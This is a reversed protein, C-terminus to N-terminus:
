HLSSPHMVCCLMGPRHSCPWSVLAQYACLQHTCLWSVVRGASKCYCHHQQCWAKIDQKMSARPHDPDLLLADVIYPIFRTDALLLLKHEDSICLEAVCVNDATPQSFKQYGVARVIQSWNTLLLEIHRPAFAFESGGEDKGFVQCALKAAIAATTWGLDHAVELSHEIRTCFALASGIHRVKGECGSMNASRSLLGMAYFLVMHNTDQSNTGATAFAVIIEVCIDAMGSALFAKLDPRVRSGAFHKTLEYAALLMSRVIGIKGRSISLVDSPSGVKRIQQVALDFVGMQMALAGVTPRGRLCRCIGTWAGGIVLESLETSQLLEALLQLMQKPVEDTTTRM